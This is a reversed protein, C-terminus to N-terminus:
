FVSLVNLLQSENNIHELFTRHGTLHSSNGVEYPKSIRHFLRQFFNTQGARPSPLLHIDTSNVLTKSYDEEEDEEEGSDFTSSLRPTATPSTSTASFDSASFSYDGVPLRDDYVHQYVSARIIDQQQEDQRHHHHRHDTLQLQAYGDDTALPTEDTAPAVGDSQNELMWDPILVCKNLLTGQYIQLGVLAFISLVFLTLIIVDRLRRVAEMLAGVITKLGPHTPKHPPLSHGPSLPTASPSTRIGSPKGEWRQRANLNKNTQTECVFSLISEFSPKTIQNKLDWSYNPM